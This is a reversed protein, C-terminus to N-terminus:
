LPTFSDSTAQLSHSLCFQSSPLVQTMPKEGNKVYMHRKPWCGNNETDNDVDQLSVTGEMHRYFTATFLTQEDPLSVL